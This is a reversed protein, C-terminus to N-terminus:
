MTKEQNFGPAKSSNYPRSSEGQVAGVEFFSLKTSQALAYSIALKVQSSHMMSTTLIITDNAMRPSADQECQFEFEDQEYPQIGSKVVNNNQLDFCQETSSLRHPGHLRWDSVRSHLSLGLGVMEIDSMDFPGVGCKEVVNKLVTTEEKQTLGWMVTMGYEFFFIDRSAGTVPSPPFSVHLVDGRWMLPQGDGVTAGAGEANGTTMRLGALLHAAGPPSSDAEVLREKLAARDLKEAVSYRYL